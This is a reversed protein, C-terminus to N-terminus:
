QPHAFSDKRPLPTASRLTDYGHLGSHLRHNFGNPKQTLRPSPKIGNPVRNTRTAPRFFRLNTWNKASFRFASRFSNERTTRLGAHSASGVSAPWTQLWPSFIRWTCASRITPVSGLDLPPLPPPPVHSLM